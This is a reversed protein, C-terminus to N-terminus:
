SSEPPRSRGHWPERHKNAMILDALVGLAEARSKHLIKSQESIGSETAAHEEREAHRQIFVVIATIESRVHDRAQQNAIERVGDALVRQLDALRHSPSMNSEPM